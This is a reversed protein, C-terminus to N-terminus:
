GGRGRGVHVSFGSRFGSFFIGIETGVKLHNVRREPLTHWGRPKKRLPRSSSFDWISIHFSVSTKLTKSFILLELLLSVPNSTLPGWGVTSGRVVIEPILLVVHVFNQRQGQVCVLRFVIGAAFLINKM